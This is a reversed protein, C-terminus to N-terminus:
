SKSRYRVCVCACACVCVIKHGQDVIHHPKFYVEITHPM